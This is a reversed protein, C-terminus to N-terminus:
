IMYKAFTGITFCIHGIIKKFISSDINYVWNNAHWLLEYWLKFIVLGIITQAIHRKWYSTKNDLNDNIFKILRFIAYCVVYGIVYGNLVLLFKSKRNVAVDANM